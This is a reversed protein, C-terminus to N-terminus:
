PPRRSFSEREGRWWAASERLKKAEEECRPKAFVFIHEHALLLFDNDRAAWKRTGLMNHQVKVVHERVLFGADLFAEMVRFGLPVLFKRKRADGVMIAVHGGPKVVRWLEEAVVRMEAAYESSSRLSSLDWKSGSAAYKIIGAYPPHTAVLDVSEDEIESLNRADGVYLEVGECGLHYLRSWAVMVAEYNVDVGICRRGLLKCEILTTGSGVFPDLVVDGPKSYRLILNRAVQPAWNGRFRANHKHTAWDGRKPFSWVTTKELEFGEPELKEPPPVKLPIKVGGVVVHDKISAFELFEELPVLKLPPYPKSALELSLQASRELAEASAL